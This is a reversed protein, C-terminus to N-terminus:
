VPLIDDPHVRIVRGSKDLRVRLPKNTVALGGTTRYTIKRGYGIVTGYRDGEMWCDTAPHMQARYETFSM